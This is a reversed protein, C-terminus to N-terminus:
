FSATLSVDSFATYADLMIHYVGAQTNTITCNEDNNTGRSSCDNDWSGPQQNFKIYLDLDGAGGQTAINLTKGAPVNITYVLNSSSNLNSIVDGNILENNNVPPEVIVGDNKYNATLTLDTFGKYAKIMVYYTGSKPNSVDCTENSTSTYGKCDYSSSSPRAGFQIYLDADGNAGVTTFNLHTQNEPVEIKFFLSQKNDADVILSQQNILLIDQDCVDLNPDSICPDPTVPVVTATIIADHIDTANAFISAYVKQGPLVNIECIEAQNIHESICDANDKTAIEGVKVFLDSNQTSQLVFKIKQTETPVEIYVSKTETAKVTNLVTDSNLDILQPPQTNPICDQTCAEEYVSLQTQASESTRTLLIYWDGASPNNITCLANGGLRMDACDNQHTVPTAAAIDNHKVFLEVEAFSDSSIEFNLKSVTNGVTTKYYAYGNELYTVDHSEGIAIQIHAVPIGTSEGIYLLHNPAGQTRSIIGKSSRQKLLAKVEYHNLSPDQELLLVAAGAVHPAAMSTGSLSTVVGDNWVSEISSGPAFIDVCSGFNSVSTLGDDSGTAAVTIASDLRAPSNFCAERTNNGAAVVVTMGADIARQTAQDWALSGDPDSLSMNMVAPGNNKKYDAIAWEIGEIVAETTSNMGCDMVRVAVIDANNAVGYNKGAITGAVHSGHGWCDNSDFNGEHSNIGMRVRSIGQANHYEELNGTVGTDLVYVTVGTGDYPSTYKGDLPMVRQDIRDLGWTANTETRSLTSNSAQHKVPKFSLTKNEEIALINPDFKLNEITDPSAKIVLATGNSLVNTIELAPYQALTNSNLKGNSQNNISLNAQQKFTIIYKKLNINEHEISFSSHSFVSALGTVSMLMFNKMRKINKM